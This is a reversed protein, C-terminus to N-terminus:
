KRDQNQNSFMASPPLLTMLWSPRKVDGEENVFSRVGMSLLDIMMVVLFIVILFTMAHHYLGLEMYFMLHFGIGGAGVLGLVTGHRVNYEFMFMLQSLLSNSSEPIVVNFAIESRSLGMVRAAELPDNRVGEMEEYQFKGLFGITYFTMALVGPLPGLGFPPILLLAWVISPLSRTMAMIIRAPVAVWIPVLNRAALPSILIAISFGLITAVFAMKITELMGVFAKSCFMAQDETCGDYYADTLMGWEPPLLDESVFDSFRGWAGDIKGWDGQVLDDFVIYCLILLFLIGLLLRNLGRNM